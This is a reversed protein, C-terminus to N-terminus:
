SAGGNLDRVAARLANIREIEIALLDYEDVLHGAIEDFETAARLLNALAQMPAGEVAHLSPKPCIAEALRQRIPCEGAAAARDHGFCNCVAAHLHEAPSAPM